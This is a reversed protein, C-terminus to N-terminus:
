AAGYTWPVVVAAGGNAVASGGSTVSLTSAAGSVTLTVPVVLDQFGNVAIHVNATYAGAGLSGAAASAQFNTTVGPAPVATDATDSISLWFPVTTPDVVFPDSGSHVTLVVPAAAGATSPLTYTISVSAPAATLPSAPT